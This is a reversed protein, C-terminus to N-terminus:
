YLWYGLKKSYLSVGSGQFGIWDEVCFRLYLSQPFMVVQRHKLAYRMFPRLTSPLRMVAAFLFYACDKWSRQLRTTWMSEWWKQGEPYALSQEAVNQFCVGLVSCVAVSSLRSPLHNHLPCATEGLQYTTPWHLSRDWLLCVTNGLIGGSTTRQGWYGMWCRFVYWCVHVCM